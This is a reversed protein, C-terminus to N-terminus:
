AEFDLFMEFDTLDCEAVCKTCLEWLDIVKLALSVLAQCRDFEYYSDLQSLQSDIMLHLSFLSEEIHKIKMKIIETKYDEPELNVYKQKSKM